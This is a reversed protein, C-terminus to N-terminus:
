DNRTLVDFPDEGDQEPCHEPLTLDPLADLGLAKLSRKFAQREGDDLVTKRKAYYAGRLEARSPLREANDLLLAFHVLLAALQVDEPDLAQPNDLLTRFLAAQAPTAEDALWANVEAVRTEAPCQWGQGYAYRFRLFTEEMDDPGTSGRKGATTGHRNDAHGFLVARRKDIARWRQWGLLFEGYAKPGHKRELQQCDLFRTNGTALEQARAILPNEKMSSSHTRETLPQLPPFTKM